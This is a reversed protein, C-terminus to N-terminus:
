KGLQERLAQTPVVTDWGGYVNGFVSQGLVALTTTACTPFTYTGAERGPQLALVWTTGLPLASAPPTPLIGDPDLVRLTRASTQGKLVARVWVEIFSPPLLTQAHRTVTAQVVLPAEAAATVFPRFERCQGAQATSSLAFLLVGLLMKNM